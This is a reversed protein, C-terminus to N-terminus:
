YKPLCGICIHNSESMVFARQFSLLKSNRTEALSGQQKRFKRTRPDSINVFDIDSQSKQEHCISTSTHQCTNLVHGERFGSM